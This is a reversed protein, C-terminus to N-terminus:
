RRYSALYLIILFPKKSEMVAKVADQQQQQQQQQTMTATTFSAAKRIQPTAVEIGPNTNIPHEHSHISEVLSGSHSL